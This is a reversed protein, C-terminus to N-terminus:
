DLSPKSKENDMNNSKFYQQLDRDIKEKLETPEIVRVHPVWIKILDEIEILQTMQYKIILNGNEKTELIQQSKLYKKSKTKHIIGDNKLGVLEKGKYSVVYRFFYEGDEFM